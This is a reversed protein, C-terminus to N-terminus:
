SIQYAVRLQLQYRATDSGAQVMAGTLTPYIARVKGGDWDPLNHTQNQELIWSTVDQWFGLNDLNQRIDTGYPAKAAFIFNQEQNMQPVQEGLINERYQISSPVSFVGYETANEGMFDAGFLLKRDIVPCQRLWARLKEANNTTPM